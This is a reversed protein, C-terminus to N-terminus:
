DFVMPQFFHMQGISSMIQLFVEDSTNIDAGKESLYKVIDKHGNQAALM